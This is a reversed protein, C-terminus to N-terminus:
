PRVSRPGFTSPGPLFSFIAGVGLKTGVIAPDFLVLTACESIVASLAVVKRTSSRSLLRAGSDSLFNHVTSM